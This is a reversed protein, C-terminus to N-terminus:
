KKSVRKVAKKKKLSQKFQREIQCNQWQVLSDILRGRFAMAAKEDCKKCNVAMHGMVDTVTIIFNYITQSTEDFFQNIDTNNRIEALYEAWCAEFSTDILDFGMQQRKAFSPKRPKKDVKKKM